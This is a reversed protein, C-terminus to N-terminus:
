RNAQPVAFPSAPPPALSPTPVAPPALPPVEPTAPAALPAPPAAPAAAPAAQAPPATPPGGVPASAAAAAPADTGRHDIGHGAQLQVVRHDIGALALREGRMKKREAAAATRITTNDTNM